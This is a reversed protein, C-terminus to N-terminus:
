RSIIVNKSITKKDTNIMIYYSGAQLKSADINYVFQNNFNILGSLNIIMEGISNYVSITKINENYEKSVELTFENNAPNPFVQTDCYCNEDNVSQPNIGTGTFSIRTIPYYYSTSTIDVPKTFTGVSTPKFKINIKTIDGSNLLYPPKFDVLEFINNNLKIDIKSIQLKGGGKNTLTLEKTKETNIDVNGFEFIDTVALDPKPGDGYGYMDLSTVKENYGDSSIKVNATYKIYEVPHFSFKLELKRNVPITVPLTINEISYVKAADNLINVNNITLPLQGENNVFISMTKPADIQVTDFNLTKDSLTIIPKAEFGFGYLDYGRKNGNKANSIFEVTGYFDARIDPTFKVNVVKYELPNLTISSINDVLAFQKNSLNISASQIILPADGINTITFSSDKSQGTNVTDFNVFSKSFAILPAKNTDIKLIEYAGEIDLQLFVNLPPNYITSEPFGKMLWRVKISDIRNSQGLGVTQIFPQQNAFHGLGAQLDRTQMLKDSYITIRNGIGTKNVDAQNFLKIGTWNNKNGIENQLMIIKMYVKEVKIQQNQGNIITDVLITDRFQRSLLLDNDGDLDYDTQEQSHGEKLKYFIGLQKSIDDFYHDKNQKLIYIREQGALNNAPYAMQGITMDLWGDNDIDWWSGGQDGLHSNAPEDRRIRDIDWVLKYNQSKGMNTAVVTRGMGVGFGGHVLVQLFDMNGDNNYDGPNAEWQCLLGAGDRLMHQASYDAQLTADRFLGTVTGAFLSGGTRCYPSTIVDQFGDNNWDSVNVGYMPEQVADIVPDNIRVFSGDGYGKLLLDKQKIDNENSYYDTFWTSIYIDINGDLNYDLFAIGTANILGPPLIPDLNLKDLGADTKITFHGKGDNLLVETRDGPDNAGQYGTFRHYYISSVIDLDGDNDVDALAAIDSIRVGPKGDRRVNIGSEETFDKFIRKYPSNKDPNPINLYLHLHNHTALPGGWLLDPYNDGNVDASWIRSGYCSDLGINNSVDTIWSPDQAKLSFVFSLAIILYIVNKM